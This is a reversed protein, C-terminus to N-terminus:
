EKVVERFVSRIEVKWRESIEDGCDKHTEFRVGKAPCMVPLAPFMIKFLDRADPPFKARVIRSVARDPAKAKPCCIVVALDFKMQGEVDPRGRREHRNGRRDPRRRGARAHDLAPPRGRAAVAPELWFRNRRCRLSRWRGRGSSTRGPPGRGNRRAPGRVPGDGHVDDLVRGDSAGAARRSGDGTDLHQVSGDPRDHRVGGPRAPADVALIRALAFVPDPQRWLGGGGLRGLAWDACNSGPRSRLHASLAGLGSAGMLLGLGRPGSHLIQDAFIPMLVAYPMGALSVLGLLLLLARIPATGCVFVFGDIMRSLPTGGDHRPPQPMPQMLLLSALVALYSLGNFFFCWGEGIAAVVIGAVAPGIIRAGNFMSSNLAIANMLDKRGVLQVLFAQRAPIDFANVIGLLTAVAFVHWLQVLGSLTLVALVLALIMACTQTTIIIQHRSRVDALGGGAPALILVPIQGAFGVLGLLVASGTLRYVLWSQAVSQMWTGILSILQGAFFLRFAPYSFARLLPYGAPSDVADGPRDERVRDPPITLSELKQGEDAPMANM